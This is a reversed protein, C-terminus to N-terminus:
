KEFFSEITPKVIDNYKKTASGSACYKYYTDHGRMAAQADDPRIYRFNINFRPLKVKAQAPVRHFWHQQTEGQMMLLDGDELSYGVVPVAMPRTRKKKSGDVPEWLEGTVPKMEFMRTAGLSVSAVTCSKGLWERADTHWAINDGGDAYLRVLVVNFVEGKEQEIRKQLRQLYGPIPRYGKGDPLGGFCATWCPTTCQRKFRESYYGVRYWNVNDQLQKRLESAEEKSLFRKDHSVSEIM